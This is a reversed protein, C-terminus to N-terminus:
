VVVTNSPASQHKKVHRNHWLARLLYKLVHRKCLGRWSRRAVLTCKLQGEEIPWPKVLLLAAYLCFADEDHSLGIM